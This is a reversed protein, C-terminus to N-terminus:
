GIDGFTDHYLGLAALIASKVVWPPAYLAKSIWLEPDSDDPSFANAVLYEAARRLSEYPLPRVTRHYRLLALLTLATEERTPMYQGWAGNAHQTFLLWRLTEDMEDRVHSPLVMLAMSTPYYISAHWKDSWFSSYQRARLVFGLIKDRVRPREREPLTELAELIHLNASISPDVEHELVAFHTDREYALLSTGDVEYGARHLALLATATDDSNPVTGPTWSLGEPRWNKLLYESQPRLLGTRGGLLNGYYLYYLTFTRAFIGCPAVAPLGGDWSSLLEELYATSTPYRSRWDPSQSLLFATASPSSAISGDELLLGAAAELDVRGAFAELSFLASTRTKFLHQTPLLRLKKEREYEYRSLQAYPLDLGQERGEALLTPLLMEFGITRHADYRLRSVHQWIYRVGAQLQERDRQRSGFSSLVLIVSLTSLLRDHVYHIRSGWSGDSRQRESLKELIDPYALSGDENTLRAAWSTDYDTVRTPQSFDAKLLRDVESDLYLALSV